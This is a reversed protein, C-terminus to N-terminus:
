PDFLATGADTSKSIHPRLLVHEDRAVSIKHEQSGLSWEVAELNKM